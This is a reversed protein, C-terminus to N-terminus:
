KILQKLHNIKKDLVDTIVRKNSDVVPNKKDGLKYLLCDANTFFEVGAKGIPVQRGTQNGLLDMKQQIERKDIHFNSSYEMMTFMDDTYKIDKKGTPSSVGMAMDPTPCFIIKSNDFPIVLYVNTTMCGLFNAAMLSTSGILSKFRPVPYENRANFFAHYPYNGGYTGSRAEEHYFAYDTIEGCGRYLQDNEFNFQSCNLKLSSIFEEESLPTTRTEKNEFIQYSFLYKM